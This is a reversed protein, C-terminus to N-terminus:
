PASAAAAPGVTVASHVEVACHAKVRPLISWTNREAVDIMEKLSAFTPNEFLMGAARLESVHGRWPFITIDVNERGEYEQLLM